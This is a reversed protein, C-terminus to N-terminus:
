ALCVALQRHTHVTMKRSQQLKLTFQSVTKSPTEVANQVSHRQSAQRVTVTMLLGTRAVSGWQGQKTDGPSLHGLSM